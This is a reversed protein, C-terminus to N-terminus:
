IEERVTTHTGEFAVKLSEILAPDWILRQQFDQHMHNSSMHFWVAIQIQDFFVAQVTTDGTYASTGFDVGNLLGMRNDYLAGYSEFNRELSSEGGPFSLWGIVKASVSESILDGKLLDAMVGSLDAATTKPYFDLLDRQEIFTAGRRQNRFTDMWEGRIEGTVFADSSSYVKNEFEDRSRSHWYQTLDTFPLDQISPSLAPILGSFPLLHDTRELNLREYLQTILDRGLLVLLYDSLALSNYKSLLQLAHEINLNNNSDIWGKNLGERHADSHVSEGAQPILHLSIEDWSIIQGPDLEGRVFADAYGIFIFLNSLTGMTRPIDEGFFISSDPKDIVISAISIRDPHAAIYSTLGKLSYTQEVWESGEALGDRNEFMLEFSSRNIGFIFLFVLVATGLFYSIFKFARYL